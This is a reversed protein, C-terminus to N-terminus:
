GPPSTSCRQSIVADMFGSTFLTDGRRWLLISGRSYTVNPFFVNPSSRVHLESSIITSVCVCVREDCYETGRDPPPPYYFIQTTGAAVVKVTMGVKRKTCHRRRM